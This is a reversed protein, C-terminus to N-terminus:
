RSAAPDPALPIPGLPIPALPIPGLPIPGLPIPGLPIPGLAILALLIPRLHSRRLRSRGLHSRRLHSRRLRSRRLHSRRLHPRDLPQRSCLTPAACPQRVLFRPRCVSLVAHMESAARLVGRWPQHESFRTSNGRQARATRVHAATRAGTSRRDESPAATSAGSRTARSRMPTSFCRTSRSPRAQQGRLALRDRAVAHPQTCACTRAPPTAHPAVYPSSTTRQRASSSSPRTRRLCWKPRRLAAAGSVAACWHRASYLRDSPATRACDRRSARERCIRSACRPHARACTRSSRSGSCRKTRAARRSGQSARM